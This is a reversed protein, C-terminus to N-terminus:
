GFAAAGAAMGCLWRRGSRQAQAALNEMRGVAIRFWRLLNAVVDLWADPRLGLRVLIPALHGPIAGPKDAKMQRGTWDLLELYDELRMPLIGKDSARWPTKSVLMGDLDAGPGQQIELPCLWGDPPMGGAETPELQGEAQARRQQLLAQIRGYASTYVSQEPTSAEGARIQNLDVYIGAILVGTEDVCKRCGYRAEWFKGTVDDQRNARRGVNECLSAMFWSVHALRKRLTALYEPNGLKAAVQEDTPQPMEDTHSKTLKSIALWRRVVEEDTWTAVIDPRNRLVLHIHNALEAHFGIEIAFLRALLMQRALIWQRRHEFDQGSEPDRGCLRARRVCRNYCHYVGVEDPDVIDSRRCAAM